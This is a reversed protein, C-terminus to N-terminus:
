NEPSSVSDNGINQEINIGASKPENQGGYVYDKAWDNESIIDLSYVGINAKDVTDRVYERVVVYYMAEPTEFYFYSDIYKTVKGYDTRKSTHIGTTYDYSTIEGQIFEFLLVIDDDFDSVEKYINEAFLSKLMMADENNISSVIQAITNKAIANDDQLYPSSFNPVCSTLQVLSILFVFCISILKNMTEGRKQMKKYMEITFKLSLKQLFEEGNLTIM